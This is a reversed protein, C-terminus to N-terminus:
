NFLFVAEYCLFFHVSAPWRHSSPYMFTVLRLLAKPSRSCTKLSLMLCFNNTAYWSLFLLSCAFNLCHNPEWLRPCLCVFYQATNKRALWNGSHKHRKLQHNNKWASSVSESPLSYPLSAQVQSPATAGWPLAKSGHLCPTRTGLASWEAAQPHRTGRWLVTNLVFIACLIKFSPLLRCSVDM